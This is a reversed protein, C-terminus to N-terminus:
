RKSALSKVCSDFYADVVFSESEHPEYVHTIDNMTIVHVISNDIKFLYGVTPCAFALEKM